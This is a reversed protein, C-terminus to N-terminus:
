HTDPQLASPFFLRDPHLTLHAHAQTLSSAPAPPPYPDPPPPCPTGSHGQALLLLWSAWLPSAPEGATSLGDTLRVARQRGCIRLCASGAGDADGLQYIPCM